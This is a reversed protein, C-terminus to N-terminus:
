APFMPVTTITPPICMPTTIPMTMASPFKRMSTLGGRQKNATTQDVVAAVDEYTLGLKDSTFNDVSFASHNSDLGTDLVAVVMGTGDYGSDGSKFIGTEYVNVTNEVLKTEAVNYVESVIIGEGDGLAKCTAGFDGAQIVIEFGSLVTSYNEGTTYAIKLDDLKSLIRAKEEGIQAIIAAAESSSLAYETFSMTKDTDEYADMLNAVDVTIIM